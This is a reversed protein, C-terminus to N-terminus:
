RAIVADPAQPTAFLWYIENERVLRLDIGSENLDDIMQERASEVFACRPVVVYDANEIGSLEGYYWPAGNKLPAFPGTLWIAAVIDLALLQSGEPVGAAVLDGGIEEFWAVTGSLFECFPIDVGGVQQRPERGIAAAQPEWFSGPTDLQIIADMTRARDTPIFWDQHGAVGPLLPEYKGEPMAFHRLPSTLVHVFSPAIMALLAVGTVTVAMRPEGLGEAKADPRPRLAFLVLGLFGWWFPDNGFNQWTIYIMAPLLLIFLVALRTQGLRRLIFIGAIVAASGAAWRAGGILEDLPEGPYSRIDGTVVTLLDGLYAGWFGFGFVLTVVLAVSLGGAVAAILRRAEFPWVIAVLVVPALALFYTMKTLALAGMLVGIITGDLVPRPRGHAPLMSLTLVVFAAAWSWRNYHMSVSLDISVGGYVLAMVLGLTAIGFVWAVWGKFRTAAAYAVLPTLVAAVLTQAWVYARGVSFGQDLFFALPWASFLGLPTMFDRHIVEGREMRFVIDLFHYLDGEHASTYLGGKVVYLATIAAVYAALILAMVVPNPRSM